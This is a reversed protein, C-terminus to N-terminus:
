VNGQDDGPRKGFMVRVDGSCERSTESPCDGTHEGPCGAFRVNGEGRVNGLVNGSRKGWCEGSHEKSTTGPCEGMVESM